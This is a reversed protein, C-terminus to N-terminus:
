RGADKWGNPGALFEAQLAPIEATKPFDNVPVLPTVHHSYFWHYVSEGGAAPKGKTEFLRSAMQAGPVLWQYIEWNRLGSWLRYKQPTAQADLTTESYGGSYPMIADCQHECFTLSNPELKERLFRMLKVDELSDGFSDLYFFTCGRKQMRDFRQWLMARHDADDANIPIIQDQKWDRKVALDRPRTCVGLKLGAEHLRGALTPWQTEVEPPLVDFDPRYMGGRPDDGAQGWVIIGQGQGTRLGPVVKDCFMAAGKATDIRRFGGHFGYPNDASVAQQSHNLYDTAIWRYDAKYRVPGFTAQFHTRYPELLHHWDVDPSVRLRM